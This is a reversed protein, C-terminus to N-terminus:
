EFAYLKGDGFSVFLTDESTALGARASGNCLLPPFFCVPWFWLDDIPPQWYGLEQGTGLDFARLTADSFIVYGVEDLITIPSLPTLPDTEQPHYVWQVTYTERDFAVVGATQASLYMAEATVTPPLLTAYREEQRILEGTSANQVTGGIFLEGRDILYMAGREWRGDNPPTVVEEFSSKLLGSQPDVIYLDEPLVSESAIIERTDPNYILGNFSKRPETGGWLKQGTAIDYATISDRPVGSSFVVSKSCTTTGAAHQDGRWATTGSQTQLVQVLWLGSLVLYDKTLCARFHSQEIGILSVWDVQGTAADIGYWKTMMLGTAPLFVLGEQYAPREHSSRGLDVQWKVSLPFSTKPQQLSYAWMTRCLLTSSLGILLTALLLISYKKIKM